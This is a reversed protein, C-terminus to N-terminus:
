VSRREFAAGILEFPAWQSPARLAPDEDNLLSLQSQRLSEAADEGRSMLQHLRTLLRRSTEDRVDWLSAIVGPVGGALFPRALSVVGEGRYSAGNATGCAGLVVLRTHRWSTSSLRSAFLTGAETGNATSSLLLYSLEPRTENAV